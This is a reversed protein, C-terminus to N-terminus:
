SGLDKCNFLVLSMDGGLGRQLADTAADLAVADRTATLADVESLPFFGVSFAFIACLFARHRLAGTLM